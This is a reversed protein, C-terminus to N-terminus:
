KVGGNCNVTGSATHVTIHEQHHTSSDSSVHPADTFIFLDLFEEKNNWSLCKM